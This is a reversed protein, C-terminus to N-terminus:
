VRSQNNSGDRCLSLKVVRRLVLEGEGSGWGAGAQVAERGM